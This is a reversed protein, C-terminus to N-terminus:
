VTDCQSRCLPTAVEEAAAFTRALTESASNAEVQLERIDKLIKNIEVQHPPPPDAPRTISAVYPSSRAKQRRLSKVIDM